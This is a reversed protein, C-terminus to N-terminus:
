VSFRDYCCFNSKNPRINDHACTSNYPYREDTEMRLPFIVAKTGIAGWFMTERFFQRDLSAVVLVLLSAFSQALLKGGIM